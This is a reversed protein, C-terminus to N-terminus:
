AAEVPMSPRMVPGTQGSLERDPTPYLSKLVQLHYRYPAGLFEAAGNEDATVPLCADDTCFNVICGPVPLGDQDLFTVTYRCEAGAAYHWKLDGAGDIGRFEDLFIDVNNENAFLTIITLESVSEVRLAPDKRYLVIGRCYDEGRSRFDGSFHAPDLGAMCKLPPVEQLFAFDPDEDKLLALIKRETVPDPATMIGGPAGGRPGLVNWAALTIGTKHM